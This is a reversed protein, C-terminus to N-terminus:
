LLMATSALSTMNYDTSSLAKELSCFFNSSSNQMNDKLNFSHIHIAMTWPHGQTMKTSWRSLGYKGVSVHSLKKARLLPWFHPYRCASCDSKSPMCGKPVCTLLENCPPDSTLIRNGTWVSCSKMQKSTDAQQKWCHCGKLLPQRGCIWPGFYLCLQHICKREHNWM